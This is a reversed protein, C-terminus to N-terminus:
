QAQLVYVYLWTGFTAHSFLGSTKLFLRRRRCCDNSAFDCIDCRVFVSLRVYWIHVFILEHGLASVFFSALMLLFRVAGSDRSQSRKKRNRFLWDRLPYIPFDRLLTAILVNWRETWFDKLDKALYPIDFAVVCEHRTILQVIVAAIDLGSALMLFNGIHDFVFDHMRPALERRVILLLVCYLLTHVVFAVCHGKFSRVRRVHEKMVDDVPAAPLLLAVSARLRDVLSSDALRCIVGYGLAGALIKLQATFTITCAMVTRMLLWDAPLTNSPLVSALVLAPSLALLRKLGAPNVHRITLITYLGLVALQIYLRALTTVALENAQVRLLPELESVFGM